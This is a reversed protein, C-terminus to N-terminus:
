SRATLAFCEEVFGQLVLGNGNARANRKLVCPSNPALNRVANRHADPLFWGSWFLHRPLSRSVVRWAGNWNSANQPRILGCGSDWSSRFRRLRIKQGAEVIQRHGYQSPDGTGMEFVSTLGRQASPVARTVTHSILHDGAIIKFCFALGEPKAKQTKASRDSDSTPM